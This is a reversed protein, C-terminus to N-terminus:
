MEVASRLSLYNQTSAQMSLLPFKRNVHKLDRPLSGRIGNIMIADGTALVLWSELATSYSYSNGSPFGILPMGQDTINFQLAMGHRNLLELCSTALRCRGRAIHWIRLLGCETMVGVMQNDPSFACHLATGNLSITPIIPCGTQMALLRMSGDLSCLMVYKSCMHVTIVPSGVYMEWLQERSLQATVKAVMGYDTKLHGNQVYLRYDQSSKTFECKSNATIQQQKIGSRRATNGTPTPPLMLRSPAPESRSFLPEPLQPEATPTGSTMGSSGINNNNNSCSLFLSHTVANANASQLNIEVKFAAQAM